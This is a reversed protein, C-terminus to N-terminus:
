QEEVCKKQHQHITPYSSERNPHFVEKQDLQKKDEEEKEISKFRELAKRGEESIRPKVVQEEPPSANFGVVNQLEAILWAVPCKIESYSNVMLELISHVLEPKWRVGLHIKTGYHAITPSEGGMVQRLMLCMFRYDLEDKEIIKDMAQKLFRRQLKKVAVSPKRKEKDSIKKLKKICIFGNTHKSKEERQLTRDWEKLITNKHIILDSKSTLLDINNGGPRQESPYVTPNHSRLTPRVFIVRTRFFKGDCSKEGGSTMRLIIRHDQLQKLKRNVTPVSVSWLKALYTNPLNLQLSKRKNSLRIISTAYGVLDLPITQDLKQDPLDDYFFLENNDNKEQCSFHSKSFKDM